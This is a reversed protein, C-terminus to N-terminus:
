FAQGISFHLRWRRAEPVGDVLLGAIPNLQYGVDLRVPGIPTLYRLGTGLAYRLDDPRFDFSGSWANGADLFLVTSVAGAVPVRAELSSEAFSHGGIPLGSGSLPSVQFRGWGRLSSAGGLFYRKFFPVNAPLAGPASMTSLRLRAALV